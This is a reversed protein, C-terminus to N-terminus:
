QQICNQRVLRSRACLLNQQLTTSQNVARGPQGGHQRPTRRRSLNPTPRISRM